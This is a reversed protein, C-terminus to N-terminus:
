LVIAEEVTLRKSVGGGVCWEYPEICLVLIHGDCLSRQLPRGRTGHGSERSHITKTDTKNM